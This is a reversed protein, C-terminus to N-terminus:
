GTKERTNGPQTRSEEFLLHETPVHTREASGIPTDTRARPESTLIQLFAGMALAATAAGILSPKWLALSSPDREARVKEVIRETFEPSSDAAPSEQSLLAELRILESNFARCRECGALHASYRDNPSYGDVFEDRLRDRRYKRCIWLNQMSENRFKTQLM